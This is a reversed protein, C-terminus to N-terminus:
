HVDGCPELDIIRHVANLPIDYPSYFEIGGGTWIRSHTSSPPTTGPGWLEPLSAVDILLCVDRPSPLGLNYPVMCAAYPTPTLWCGARIYGSAAILPLVDKNTYHALVGYIQAVEEGSIPPEQSLFLDEAPLPSVSYRLQYMERALNDDRM